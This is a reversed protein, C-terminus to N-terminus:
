GCVKATCNISTRHRSSRTVQCALDGYGNDDTLFVIVNPRQAPDARRLDFDITCVLLLALAGAFINRNM